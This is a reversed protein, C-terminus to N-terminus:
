AVRNVIVEPQRIVERGGRIFGNRIVGVIVGNAFSPNSATSRGIHRSSDFPTQGPTLDVPELDVTKLVLRIIQLGPELSNEQGHRSDVQEQQYRQLYLDAFSVFQDTIWPELRFNLRDAVVSSSMIMILLNSLERLRTLEQPDSLRPLGSDLVLPVLNIKTIMSDFDRAPELIMDLTAKADGPTLKPLKILLPDSLNKWMEWRTSISSVVDSSERFKRWMEELVVREIAIPSPPKPSVPQPRNRLDQVDQHLRSIEARVADISPSTAAKRDGLRAEIANLQEDWKTTIEQLQPLQAEVKEWRKKLEEVETRWASPSVEPRPISSPVSDPVRGNYSTGKSAVPKPLYDKVLSLIVLAFNISTV